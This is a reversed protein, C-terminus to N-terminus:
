QRSQLEALIDALPRGPPQTKLRQVEENSFPIEVNEYLSRAEVGTPSFFGLLHGDEDMLELPEVLNCLKARIAPDITVKTMAIGALSGDVSRLRECNTSM